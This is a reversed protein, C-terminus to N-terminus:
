FSFIGYQKKKRIYAIFVIFIAYYCISLFPPFQGVAIGPDLAAFVDIIGLEYELFIRAVWGFIVAMELSVFGAAIVFFGLFMTAPIAALILINAAVSVLSFVGFNSLLIPLVAVQASITNWLNERFGLFGPEPSVRFFGTFAPKLYVLGLLALFSLQFGIDGVLVNPNVLVMALAAIAIANRVSYSRSTGEALMLIGAMLAARVVSPEAGTMIVFVVIVLMSVPLAKRRAMVMGLFGLVAKAIVAINYGSLAVLHNTGTVSMKERFEKRFQGTEGLTVGSIFAAEEPPLVRRFTEEARAKIGFLVAKIKSGHGSSVFEVEPFAVIGSVREKRLFRAFSGTGEEVIGQFRILDGYRFSPYRSVRVLFRAEVDGEVRVILNQSELRTEAKEIVGEATIREGYPLPASLPQHYFFSYAAGAFIALSLIALWKKGIVSLALAALASILFASLFRSTWGYIFDALFAGVLFFISFWFAKDHLPM